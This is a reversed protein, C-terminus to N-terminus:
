KFMRQWKLRCSNASRENGHKANLKKAINHWGRWELDCAEVLTNLHSTENDYYEYEDFEPWPSTTKNKGM